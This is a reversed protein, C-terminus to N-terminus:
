WCWLPHVPVCTAALLIHGLIQINHVWKLCCCCCQCQWKAQGVHSRQPSCRYRVMLPLPSSHLCLMCGAACAGEFLTHGAGVKLLLVLVSPALLLVNMKVSVAASYVVLAAAWWRAVLLATAAYALLMAICDNFLRLVFLSHMRKSLCLLALTWPPVAESCIYLHFALAQLCSYSAQGHSATQQCGSPAWFTKEATVPLASVAPMPMSSPWSLPGEPRSTTSAM